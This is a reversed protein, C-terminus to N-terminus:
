NHTINAFNFIEVLEQIYSNHNFQKLIMEYGQEVQQKARESDNLIKIVAEQLDVSDGLNVGTVIGSDILQNIIGTQSSRTVIVPRQCAMAEFLTTLGAEYNNELLSLVVLDSDRYLQVLDHMEYFDCSMNSPMVKPFSSKLKSANPSFACVKVDVDLNQLANALTLYDRKELGGSAILPRIKKYSAEGPTFFSTDIAPQSCIHHIRNEPLHLYNRLFEVQSNTCTLFLDIKDKINLLKLVLRGRPRNLNNVLTIIKPRRPLSYCLTAIPIGLQEGNCFIIDEENLQLSLQRALAWDSPEGIIKALIKDILLVQVSESQHIKAGLIQSIDWMVHLPRKGAKAKNVIEELDCNSNLAIHYRM